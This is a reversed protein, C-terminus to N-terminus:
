SLPAHNSIRRLCALTAFFLGGCLCTNVEPLRIREFDALASDVDGKHKALADDLAAVDGLACNVGEALDPPTAHAADGVLVIGSNTGTNSTYLAGCVQCPPFRVGESQAFREWEDEEVLSDDMFNFRPFTKAFWERMEQGSTIQWVEHDPHTSIVCSRAPGRKSPFIALSIKNSNKTNISSIGYAIPVDFPIEHYTGNGVPVLIDPTL